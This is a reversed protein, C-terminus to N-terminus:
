EQMSTTAPIVSKDDEMTIVVIIVNLMYEEWILNESLLGQHSVKIPHM